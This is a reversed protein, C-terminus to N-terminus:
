EALGKSPIETCPKSIRKPLIVSSKLKISKDINYGLLDDYLDEPLAEKLPKINCWFDRGPIQFWRVYPVFDVLVEKLSTFDTSDWSEVEKIDLKDKVAWDLLLNWIKIEEMNLNDQKLIQILIFKDLDYFKESKTLIEPNECIIRLFTSRLHTFIDLEFTINLTEVPDENILRSSEQTFFELIHDNLIDINLEDSAKILNCIDSVEQQKLNLDAKYIFRFNYQILELFM